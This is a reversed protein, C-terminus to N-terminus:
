PPIDASTSSASILSSVMFEYTYQLEEFGEIYSLESRGATAVKSYVADIEEVFKNQIGARLTLTILAYTIVNATTGYGIIKLLGGYTRAPPNFKGALLYIFLNGMIEDDTSTEKRNAGTIKNNAQADPFPSRMVATLLNGRTTSSQHDTNKNLRGREVRIMEQVYKDLEVHAIHVKRLPNLNLLWGPFLLIAVMYGTTASLAKLLQAPLGETLGEDIWSWQDFGRAWWFGCPFYRGVDFFERRDGIRM